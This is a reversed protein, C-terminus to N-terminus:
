EVQVKRHRLPRSKPVRVLAGEAELHLKVATCYWMVGNPFLNRPVRGEVARAIEILTLGPGDTPLIELMADRVPYFKEATVPTPKKTPDPHRALM